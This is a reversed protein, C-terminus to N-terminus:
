AQEYLTIVPLQYQFTGTPQMCVLTLQM